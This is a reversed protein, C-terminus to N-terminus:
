NGQQNKDSLSAVVREDESLAWALKKVSPYEYAAAVDVEVGLWAALDGTMGVASASDLGYRDFNASIDLEGPSLGLLEEVYSVLWNSVEESVVERSLEGSEPMPSTTESSKM